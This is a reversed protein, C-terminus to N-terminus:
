GVWESSILSAIFVKGPMMRFDKFAILIGIMPFFSFVLYWITTPLALLTLEIDDRSVKFRKVKNQKDM